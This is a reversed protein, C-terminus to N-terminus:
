NFGGAQEIVGDVAAGDVHRAQWFRDGGECYPVVRVVLDRQQLKRGLSMCEKHTWTGLCSLGNSKAFSAHENADEIPMGIVYSCSSAVYEITMRKNISFTENLLLIHFPDDDERSIEDDDILWELPAGAKGQNPPIPDYDRQRNGNRTKGRRDTETVTRPETITVMSIPVVRAEYTAIPIFASSLAVFAALLFFISKGVVTMM